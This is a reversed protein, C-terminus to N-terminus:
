NAQLSDHVYTPHLNWASVHLCVYLHGICVLTSTAMFVVRSMLFQKSNLRNFISHMMDANQLFELFRQVRQVELM